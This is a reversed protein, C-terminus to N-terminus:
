NCDQTFCVSEYNISVDILADSTDLYSLPSKGVTSLKCRILKYSDVVKHENDLVEIVITFDDLEHKNQRVVLDYLLNYVLGGVDDKFVLGVPDFRLNASYQSRQMKNYTESVDFSVLPRDISVLHASLFNSYNDPVGLFKVYFKDTRKSQLNQNLNVSDNM